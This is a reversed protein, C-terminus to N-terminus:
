NCFVRLRVGLQICNAHLSSLLHVTQGTVADRLKPKKLQELLVDKQLTRGLVLWVKREALPHDLIELRLKEWLHEGVPLSSRGARWRRIQTGSWYSGRSWRNLHMPESGGRSILSLSKLAQAVVIHLASASVVQDSGQKAHIFAIKRRAFDACVFDAAETDLDDCFLFDRRGFNTAMLGTKKNSEILNFISGNDWTKKQAGVDGKESDVVSLAPWRTLVSALREEAHACDIRYFAQATYFVMPDTLAVTFFDDNNLFLRLVKPKPSPKWGRSEWFRESLDDIMQDCLHKWPTLILSWGTPPDVVCLVAIVGTKGTGTPM